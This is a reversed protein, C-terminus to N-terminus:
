LSLRAGTIFSYGYNVYIFNSIIKIAKKIIKKCNKKKKIKQEM